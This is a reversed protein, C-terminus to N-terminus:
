KYDVNSVENILQKFSKHLKSVVESLVTNALKPNFLARKVMELDSHVEELLPPLDKGKIDKAIKIGTRTKYAITTVDIKAQGINQLILRFDPKEEQLRYKVFFEEIAVSLDRIESLARNHREDRRTFLNILIDLLGTLQNM